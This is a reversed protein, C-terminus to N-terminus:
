HTGISPIYRPLFIDVSRGKISGEPARAVRDVSSICQNKIVSQDFTRYTHHAPFASSLELEVMVVAVRPLLSQTNHFGIVTM